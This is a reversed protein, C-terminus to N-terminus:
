QKELAEINKFMVKESIMKEIQALTMWCSLYFTGGAIRKGLETRSVPFINPSDLDVDVSEMMNRVVSTKIGFNTNEPIAKHKELTKLLDLKAVAVGIVNGRDDLIPGGSNGPQLAADIQINSFNNGVGTLSSVIGKTVKVTTSISEGFPYGAVFVDQLLEAKDRSLPFVTPPSFDAKLLALDNGPDFTVIEAPISKGERRVKVNQCGQVVHHNTIIYGDSSIAFGSGSSAPLLEDVKSEVEEKESKKNQAIQPPTKEKKPSEAVIKPEPEPEVESEKIRKPEKEETQAVLQNNEWVGKTVEGEATTFTGRGHWKDDEWEGVYEDGNPSSLTGEGDRLGNRWQGSYVSGDRYSYTGLGNVCGGSICRVNAQVMEGKSEPEKKETQAVLRNNEWVGEIVEGEATTFTGRGHFLDNKFNGEYIVQGRKSLVGFGNKKRNQFEGEFWLIDNSTFKGRILEGGRRDYPFRGRVKETSAYVLRVYPARESAFFICDDSYNGRPIVPVISDRALKDRVSYLDANIEYTEGAVAFFNLGGSCRVAKDKWEEMKAGEVLIHHWGPAVQITRQGNKKFKFLFKYDVHVHAAVQLFKKNQRKFVITAKESDTAQAIADPANSSLLSILLFVSFIIPFNKSM